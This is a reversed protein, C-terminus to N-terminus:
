KEDGEEVEEPVEVDPEKPEELGLEDMEEFYDKLEEVDWGMMDFAKETGFRDLKELVRNMFGVAKAMAYIDSARVPNWQHKVLIPLDEGEPIGLIKRTWYDYWQAEVERKLYRQIFSIPGQVYAEFEAYATARNEIPKNLLFRPTGFNGMIAQDFKDLLEVLGQLDPTLKTVTATVKQNVAVSKGSRAADTVTDLFDEKQTKTLGSGTFDVQYIAHPAWIAKTIEPFDERLLHHRAFCVDVIPEIDSLGEWATDTSRRGEIDDQVINMFFLIEEPEYVTERGKYSYGEVDWNTTLKPEIDDSRLSLLWDPYNDTGLVIEWVAKGFISRRLQSVFLVLDMNVRKNIEDIKEKLDKYKEIVADPDEIDGVPELETEFGAVM